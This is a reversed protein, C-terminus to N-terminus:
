IKVIKEWLQAYINKYDLLEGHVLLDQIMESYFKSSKSSSSVFEALFNALDQTSYKVEAIHKRKQVPFSHEIFDKTAIIPIGAQIYDVIKGNETFKSQNLVTPEYMAYGFRSKSLFDLADERSEVAGLFIISESIGKSLCKLKYNEIAAPSGGIILVRLHIRDEMLMELSEILLDIGTEQALRGIYAIDFEIVKNIIRKKLDEINVTLGPVVIYNKSNLGYNLDFEKVKSSVYWVIDNRYAIKKMQFQVKEFVSKKIRKNHDSKFIIVDGNMFISKKVISLWKLLYIFFGGFNTEGIGINYKCRYKFIFFIGVLFNLLYNLLIQVKIPISFPITLEFKIQDNNMQYTAKYKFRGISKQLSPLFLVHIECDHVSNLYKNLNYFPQTNLFNVIYLVRTRM